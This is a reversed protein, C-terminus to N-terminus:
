MKQDKTTLHKSKEAKPRSQLVKNTLQALDPSIEDGTEENNLFHVDIDCWESSEGKQVEEQCTDLYLNVLDQENSSCNSDWSICPRKAASAVSQSTPSGSKTETIDHKTAKMTSSLTQLSRAFTKMSVQNDLPNDSTVTSNGM